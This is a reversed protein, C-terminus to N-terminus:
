FMISYHVFTLIISNEVVVSEFIDQCYRTMTDATLGPPLLSQMPNAYDIGASMRNISQFQLFGAVKVDRNSWQKICIYQQWLLLLM